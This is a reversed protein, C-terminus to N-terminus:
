LLNHSATATKGASFSLTFLPRVVSDVEHISATCPLNDKRKVVQLFVRTFSWLAVPISRPLPLALVYEQPIGQYLLDPNNKFGFRHYYQPDGVLVCGGADLDKLRSLGKGILAKGIGQRQHEPLVSIPGLGYWDGNGGSITVASFAIHGVVKGDLEAVLSLVLAEAARLADVILHETQHSHPHNKFAARTVESIAAIDSDKEDRIIM